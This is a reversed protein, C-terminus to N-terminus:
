ILFNIEAVVGDEDGVENANTNLWRIASALKTAQTPARGEDWGLNKAASIALDYYRENERAKRDLEMISRVPAIKTTNKM